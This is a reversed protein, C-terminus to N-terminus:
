STSAKQNEKKVQLENVVQQVNPVQHALKEAQRREAQSHVDGTLTIVGNKVDYKVDHNLRHKVLVADYNKEIAKDLDSHETKAASENGPPEVSIENSVIQSSAISKAISEAQGRQDDSQTTGSLTVVGKDRDQSVKVDKLGAQDLSSRIQNSVDPSKEHSNSCGSLPTIALFVLIAGSLLAIKM